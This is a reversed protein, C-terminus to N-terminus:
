RAYHRARATDPNFSSRAAARPGLDRPDYPPAEFLNLPDSPRGLSGTSDPQQNAPLRSRDGAFAGGASFALALFAASFIRASM